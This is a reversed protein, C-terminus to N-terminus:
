NSIFVMKTLGKLVYNTLVLVKLACMHYDLQTFLLMLDEIFLLSIKLFNRFGLFLQHLIASM